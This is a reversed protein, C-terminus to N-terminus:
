QIEVAGFQNISIKKTDASARSLIVIGANATGTGKSFNIDINSSPTSTISFASGLDITREVTGTVYSSGKYLIYQTSLFKVGYSSDALRAVSRTRAIRLTQVIESAVQTSGSAPVLNSYMPTAAIALLVGIGLVILLEVITFGGKM